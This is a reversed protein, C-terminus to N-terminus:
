KALVFAFFTISAVLRYVGYRIERPSWVTMRLSGLALAFGVVSLLFGQSSCIESHSLSRTSEPYSLTNM